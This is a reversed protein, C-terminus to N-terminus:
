NSVAAAPRQQIIKKAPPQPSAKAAPKVSGAGLKSADAKAAAPKAAVPQAPKAAAPAKVAKADDGWPLAEGGKKAANPASAPAADMAAAPQVNCSPLESKARTWIFSKGLFRMGLYGTVQLKDPGVLQLAVTYSKGVKPDYVWGGDFGGEQMAAVNGITPLGCIPRKNMSADPNNKDTLPEGSANIPDRLWVIRGCLKAGCPEIKVAGKGSDDIWVGAEKPVGAALAPAAGLAAIAVIAASTSCQSLFKLAKSTRMVIFWLHDNFKFRGIGQFRRFM